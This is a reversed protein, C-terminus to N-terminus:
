GALPPTVNIVTKDGPGLIRKVNPDPEIPPHFAAYDTWASAYHPLKIRNRFFGSSPEM